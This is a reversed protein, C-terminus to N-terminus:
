RLEAATNQSVGPALESYVDFLRGRVNQWAYQQVSDRGASALRAAKVPDDILDLLARAMADADGPSVLLATKEHEVLFPIGGVNTSVVPIGSALAELISIPMNDVLSPNLFLEARQYLEGIRDNDVRGTFTVNAALGLARALEALKEREPGNGAITMHAGPRSRRLIALSRLATQIDYIHELNRTVILHPQDPRSLHNPRPAFRRLDVVNPVIAASLGFRAFVQQLYGSPVVLRDALRITMRTWFFSQEFFAEARGGRYNVVIPVRRLKGIWIAPAAYLHWAWGSNAMVHLLQVRRAVKWLRILFPILRFLARAGRVSGVWNPRYPANVQVIEVAVGEQELLRALQRTQNAMGGSPPPLPGVLGIRLRKPIL